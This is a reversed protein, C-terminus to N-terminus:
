RNGKKVPRIAPWSRENAQAVPSEELQETLSPVPAALNEAMKRAQASTFAVNARQLDGEAWGMPDVPIGAQRLAEEQEATTLRSREWETM